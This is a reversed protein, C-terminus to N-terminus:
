RLRRTLVARDEGPGEYSPRAPIGYLRQTGPGAEPEFGMAVFFAIAIPDDPWAVATVCRCGREAADAVFAEVMSRGVGRRRWHPDVGLLHIVAEDPRDPSAFGILFARVRRDDRAIWSTGAFHRFWLRGVLLAVRRGSFWHDVVDAVAAHDDETPRRPRVDAEATM